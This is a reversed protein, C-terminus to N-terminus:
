TVIPLRLAAAQQRSRASCLAWSAVSARRGPAFCKRDTAEPVDFFAGALAADDGAEGSPAEPSAGGVVAEGEDVM